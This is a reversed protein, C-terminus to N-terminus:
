IEIKAKIKKKNWELLIITVIFIDFITLFLLPLSFTHFFRYFQYIIFSGFVAVAWLYAWVKNKLLSVALFMNIVGHAALYIVAFTRADYYLSNAMNILFNAILDNPDGAIEQQALDIIFNNVVLQGSVLLLIGGLFEFLGIVAKLLIGIDFTKDILKRVDIITKM